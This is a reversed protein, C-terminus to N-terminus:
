AVGLVMRRLSEALGFVERVNLHAVSGAHNAFLVDVLVDFLAQTFDGPLAVPKAYEHAYEDAKGETKRQTIAM